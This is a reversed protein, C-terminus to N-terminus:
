DKAEELLTPATDALFQSVKVFGEDESELDFGRYKVRAPYCATISGDTDEVEVVIAWGFVHLIRNIWWLLGADRFEQWTRKDVTAM